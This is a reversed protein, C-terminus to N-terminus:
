AFVAWPEVEQHTQLAHLARVVAAAPGVEPSDKLLLARQGNQLEPRWKAVKVAGNLAPQNGHRITGDNIGDEFAGCSAAFEVGSVDVVPVRAAELEDALASAAVKGGWESTLRKCEEVAKRVPLPRGDNTLMVQTHGDERHWAVSIWVDRDGTLDLGFTVDSGRPAGPDALTLWQDYPLAGGAKAVDDWIGLFERRFNEDDLIKRNLLFAREPTRKPFSPNAKAWQKRDDLDADPDASFEVYLTDTSMGDVAAKRRMRFAEGNDQESPPTGACLILPNDATNTTPTLNSLARMSIHQFEDLVLVGVKAKGRGFGRERAGFDIRSGNRFRIRWRSGQLASCAIVHPAVRKHQALEKMAEFMEETTATHHSTWIVRLKPQLLCLAFIICGLLYSKGVQRPISLISLDAAWSGGPRKSLIMRGVAQQWPDFGWGINRCTKEIRPWATATVGTPV